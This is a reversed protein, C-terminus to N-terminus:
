KNQQQMMLIKKLNNKAHIYDSNIRLAKRFHAIAGETNGKDFLDVGLDNYAKVNDPKIRLAELCFSASLPVIRQILDENL